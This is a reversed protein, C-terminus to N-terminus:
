MVGKPKEEHDFNMVMLGCNECRIRGAIRELRSSHCIFCETGDKMWKRMKEDQEPTLDKFVKYDKM